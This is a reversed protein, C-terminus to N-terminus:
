CICRRTRSGPSRGRAEERGDPRVAHVAGQDRRVLRHEGAPDAHVDTQYLGGFVVKNLTDRDIAEEFAQRLTPSTALPTGVSTYPLNGVGDQQRRQHHHGRWGLQPAELLRLSSDQQIASLQPTAVQDLVQIDGARLAAAAAAADTMPKYVIKDLYVDDRAYWYPSKVVTVNDGVVRHDFM